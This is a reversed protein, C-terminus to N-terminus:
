FKIKSAYKGIYPLEEKKWHTANMLGRYIFYIRVLSLLGGIGSSLSAIFDILLSCVLLVIGQKAHFKAYDDDPSIVFPLFCLIGIYSLAALLKSKKSGSLIGGEAKEYPKNATPTGGVNQSTSHSQSGTGAQAAWQSTQEKQKQQTQELTAYLDNEAKQSAQQAQAAAQAVKISTGCAVCVTEGDPLYAGCNSCYAM